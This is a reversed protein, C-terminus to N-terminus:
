SFHPQAMNAITANVRSLGQAAYPQERMTRRLLIFHAKLTWDVDDGCEM